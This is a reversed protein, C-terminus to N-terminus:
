ALVVAKEMSILTSILNLMKKQILATGFGADVFVTALSMFITLMGICGYDEPELLRALIIGSIFLIVYGTLKQITTWVVSSLAKEKVTAAM